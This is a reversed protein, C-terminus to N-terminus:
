DPIGNRDNDKFATFSNNLANQINSNIDNANAPIRPDLYDGNKLFWIYPKIL